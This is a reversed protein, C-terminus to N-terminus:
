KQHFKNWLMAIVNGVIYGIFFTLVVLGISRMLDFSMVTFPNNLSHIKYVFDLWPQAWDFAILISWVLHVLGAFSGLVLGLKNKNM